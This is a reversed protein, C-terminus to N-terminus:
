NIFIVELNSLTTNLAVCWNVLRSSRYIIGEDHFRVFTENVADCLEPDLTFKVRSWDYSGGLRYLQEYIRHGFRASHFFYFIRKKGNGCKTSLHKVALTM